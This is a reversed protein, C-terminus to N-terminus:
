LTNSVKTSMQTPIWRQFYPLVAFDPTHLHVMLEDEVFDQYKDHLTNANWGYHSAIDSLYKATDLEPM